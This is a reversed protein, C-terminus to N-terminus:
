KGGTYVHGGKRRLMNIELKLAEVEKAQIKVLQVLSTREKRETGPEKPAVATQKANLSQELAHQREFLSAVKNLSATSKETADKLSQKVGKLKGLWGQLAAEQTTEVKGIRVKLEEAAKNVGVSEIRELDIEQGFKLLQVDRARADLERLKEGKSSQEKHLTVHETRLAKQRKRLAAKEEALERIRARLKELEESPFVLDSTLDDPLVGDAMHKVQSMQLTVFVHLENLKGQKETQFSQIDAETDKLAKDIVKEKKILMDNEKRLAEVGKQFDAYVEEQELRKERLECVKDYLAPDCGPPCTEEEEEEDDEDLEDDGEDEDEDESNYEDDDGGEAATRKRKIKRKFIKLMVDYFKNNEGLAAHFEAMIQRDRDLLREIETKKQTLKEQCEAVRSVIESKETHKSELRKALTTDKKEFEKLLALEQFLVLKRLDTTKLDAELKLKEARLEGLAEDFSSITRRRRELLRAKEVLLREREQKAEAAQVDSLEGRAADRALADQQAEIAAAGSGGSAAATAAAGKAAAGGGGSMGGGMGGMGGKAKARAAAQEAAFVERQEATTQDRLEPQEESTLGAPSRLAIPLTENVDLSKNIAILRADEEAMSTILRQKLDRLALFRENFGMKIAHISEDLLVIQRRKKQANVRQAEPVVYDTDTKLSFDGMHAEAYQIAAVDAPDEYKDDPKRSNFEAWEKARAQRRLLREQMKSVKESSKGTAGEEGTAKEEDEEGEGGAFGEGGRAAANARQRSKHEKDILSHVHEMAEKQWGALETTRFSRVCLQNAFGQLAINEVALGRLFAQELKSRALLIKESDFAMELKAEELRAETEQLTSEQLGPDVYFAERALREPPPLAANEDLLLNFRRRLDQVKDRVTLKKNEALAKRADSEQKQKAEEISYTAADTIDAAPVGAETLTPLSMASLIPDKADTTAMKHVFLNGDTGASVLFADDFSLQARVAKCAGHVSGLWYADGGMESVCISGDTGGSLFYNGSRSAGLHSISAGNRAMAVATEGGWTVKWMTNPEKEFSVYFSRQPKNDRIPLLALVAGADLDPEEEEVPAEEDAPPALPDAEAPAAAPPETPKLAAKAAKAAARRVDIVATFEFPKGEFPLEYTESTDPQEPLTLEACTGDAYGVLLATEDSWAMSTVAAKTKAPMFGIPVYQGHQVSLFFVSGDAAGTALHSGDPSYELTAVAVAHPKLAARLQLGDKCRTLVRVVGDAYGVAITRGEPDIARAGWTLCTAGSASRHTCLTQKAVYDWLRVTGDSGATACCHNFPCVDLGTIGGSHFYFLPTCEAKELVVKYVGGAADQVLWHGEGRLMTVITSKKRGPEMDLLCVEKLPSLYFVPEEETM